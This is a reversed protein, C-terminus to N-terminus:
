ATLKQLLQSVHFNEGLLRVLSKRDVSYSLQASGVFRLDADVYQVEVAESDLYIGSWWLGLRKMFDRLASASTTPDLNILGVALGYKGRDWVKFRPTEHYFAGIGALGTPIFEGETVTFNEWGAVKRMKKEMYKKYRSFARMCSDMLEQPTNGSAWVRKGGIYPSVPSKSSYGLYVRM